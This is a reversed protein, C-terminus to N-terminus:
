INFFKIDYSFVLADSMTELSQFMEFLLLFQNM